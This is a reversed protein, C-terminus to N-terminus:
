RSQRGKKFRATVSMQARNFLQIDLFNARYFPMFRAPILCSIPQFVLKRLIPYVICTLLVGAICVGGLMGVSMAIGMSVDTPLMVSSAAVAALSLLLANNKM